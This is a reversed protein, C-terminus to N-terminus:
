LISFLVDVAGEIFDVMDLRGAANCFSLRSGRGVQQQLVRAAVRILCFLPQCVELCADELQMVHEAVQWGSEFLAVNTSANRM